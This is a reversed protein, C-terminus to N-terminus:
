LIFSAPRGGKANVFSERTRGQSARNRLWCPGGPLPAMVRVSTPKSPSDRAQGQSGTPGAVTLYRGRQPLRPRRRNATKM